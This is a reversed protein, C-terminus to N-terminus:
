AGVGLQKAAVPFCEKCVTILSEGFYFPKTCVRCVWRSCGSCQRKEGGKCPCLPCPLGKGYNHIPFPQGRRAVPAPRTAAATPM